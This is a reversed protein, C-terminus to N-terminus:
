LRDGLEELASIGSLDIQIWGQEPSIQFARLQVIGDNSLVLQSPAVRYKVNEFIFTAIREKDIISKLRNLLMEEPGIDVSQAIETLEFMFARALEPQAIGVYGISGNIQRLFKNVLVGRWECHAELGFKNCYYLDQRIRRILKKPPNLNKNVVLGTVWQRTSQRLIRTKKANAKFGCKTVADVLQPLADILGTTGSITIDDVYRTYAFNNLGVADICVQMLAADLPLAAFNALAPSTPAGQPLTKNFTMLKALILSAEADCNFQKQLISRVLVDSVSGFFNSLDLNLVVDRNVHKRANSAISRGKVCGHVHEPLTIKKLFEDLLTRQISKLKDQSAAIHRVGGARKPRDFVQYHNAADDSLAVLFEPLLGLEQCIDIISLNLSLPNNM